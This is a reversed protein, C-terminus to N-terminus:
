LIQGPNNVIMVILVLVGLVLYEFSFKLKQKEKVSYGWLGWSLYFALTMLLSAFLLDLGLKYALFTASACLIGAGLLKEALVQAKIKQFAQYFLVVAVSFAYVAAILISIRGDRLLGYIPTFSIFATYIKVITFVILSATQHKLKNAFVKHTYLLTLYFAVLSILIVLQRLAFIPTLKVFAATNVALFLPLILYSFNVKWFKLDFLYLLRKKLKNKSFNFNADYILALVLLVLLLSGLTIFKKQEPFILNFEWVALMITSFLASKQLYSLKM